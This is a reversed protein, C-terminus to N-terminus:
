ADVWCFFIFGATTGVVPIYALTFAIVVSTCIMVARYASTALATLIGTYTSPTAAKRSGHKLM